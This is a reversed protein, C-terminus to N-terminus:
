RELITREQEMRLSTERALIQYLQTADPYINAPSTMTTKSSSKITFWSTITSYFDPIKTSIRSESASTTITAIFSSASTPTDLLWGSVGRIFVVCNSLQSM